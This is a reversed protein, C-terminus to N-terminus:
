SPMRPKIKVTNPNFVRKGRGPSLLTIEMLADVVARSRDLDLDEWVARVDDADVLPGLVSLRGAEAMEADVRALGATVKETMTRVMSTPLAGDAFEAAIEDLRATLTLRQARLADLDPRRHDVILDRADDRSLREIVAEAVHRDIPTRIRAVHGSGGDSIV